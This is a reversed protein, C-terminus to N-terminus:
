HRIKVLWSPGFTNRIWQLDTEWEKLGNVDYAGTEWANRIWRKYLRGQSERVEDLVKLAKALKELEKYKESFDGGEMRKTEANFTGHNEFRLEKHTVGTLCHWLFLIHNGRQSITFPYIDGISHKQLGAHRTSHGQSM